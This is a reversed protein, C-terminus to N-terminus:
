YELTPMLVRRQSSTDPKSPQKNELPQQSYISIEPLAAPENQRQQKLDEEVVDDYYYKMKKNKFFEPKKYEDREDYNKTRNNRRVYGNTAKNSEHPKESYNNLNPDIKLIQFIYTIRAFENWINVYRMHTRGNFHKQLRMENDKISISFGCDNCLFFGHKNTPKQYGSESSSLGFTSSKDKDKKLSNSPSKKKTVLMDLIRNIQLAHEKTKIDNKSVNNYLTYNTLKNSSKDNYSHLTNKFSRFIKNNRSAQKIKNNINKILDELSMNEELNNTSEDEKYYTRKFEDVKMEYDYILNKIDKYYEAFLSVFGYKETKDSFRVEGKAEKEGKIHYFHKQIQNLIVKFKNLYFYRLQLDHKKRCDPTCEGNIVFAKCTPPFSLKKLLIDSNLNTTQQVHLLDDLIHKQEDLPKLFHKVESNKPPFRSTSFKKREILEHQLLNRKHLRKNLRNLKKQTIESIKIEKKKYRPKKQPKKVGM